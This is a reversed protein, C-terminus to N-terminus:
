PQSEDFNPSQCDSGFTGVSDYIIHMRLEVAM